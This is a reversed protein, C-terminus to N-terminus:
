TTGRASFRDKRMLSFHLGSSPRTRKEMTRRTEGCGYAEAVRHDHGGPAPIGPSNVDFNKQDAPTDPSLGLVDVKLDKMDQRAARVACSQTTCGPTDAKPYFYLLVKRGKFDSLKM